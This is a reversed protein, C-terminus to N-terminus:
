SGRSLKTAYCSFFIGVTPSIELYECAMEFTRIFGWSNLFLLSHAVNLAKLVEIIFPSLSVFIVMDIIFPPYLYFYPSYLDFSIPITVKESPSFVKLIVM